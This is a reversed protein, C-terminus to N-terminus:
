TIAMLFSRAFTARICRRPRGPIAGSNGTKDAAFFGFGGVVLAREYRAAIYGSNEARYLTARFLKIVIGRV